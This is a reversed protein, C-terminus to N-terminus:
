LDTYGYQSEVSNMQKINEGESDQTGTIIQLIKFAKSQRPPGEQTFKHYFVKLKLAYGGGDKTGGVSARIQDGM